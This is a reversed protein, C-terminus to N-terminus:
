LVGNLSWNYKLHRVRYDENNLAAALEADDIYRALYQQVSGAQQVFEDEFWDFIKSVRARAKQADFQNKDVDNIFIRANDDLQADLRDARYAEPRLPPCSFSACVIAFHIRSEGLPIIVERELDYLNLERGGVQYKSAIFYRYRGFLSGPSRGELIGQIALANYANIWFALIAQDDGLSQVDVNKIQALYDDFRADERIGAYDVLGDQVHQQLVADFKGHLDASATNTLSLLGLAAVVWKMMSLYTSNKMTDM